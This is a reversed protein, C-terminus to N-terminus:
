TKTQEDDRDRDVAGDKNLMCVCVCVATTQKNNSYIQEDISQDFTNLHFSRTKDRKNRM